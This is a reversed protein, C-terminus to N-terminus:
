KKNTEAKKEAEVVSGSLIGSFIRNLPIDSQVTVKVVPSQSPIKKGDIVLDKASVYQVIKEPM